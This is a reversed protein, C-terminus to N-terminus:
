GCRSGNVAFLTKGGPFDADAYEAHIQAAQTIPVRQSIVPRVQGSEILPWLDEQVAGVIEAKSGPGDIPRSRLTTAFISGRKGMLVRLDVEAITGSQIGIIVLRGGSALAEVNRQLYSAGVVDLIINAGGKIACIKEVFDEMRYNILIEAGLDACLQLKEETGATVAVTLGLAVGIQIALTGLGGAGGHILLVDGQKPMSPTVLNSWLTCAAEPLAAADVLSYNKPVTLLQVAPVAVFQAYGGGALLACVKDGVNWGKVGAGVASIVGSCELGMIESSGPPPPYHGERQLTDARNLASAAVAVVVEGEGAVPDPVETWKMVEPGGFHDIMMAYMVGVTAHAYPRADVRWITRRLHGCGSGSCYHRAM